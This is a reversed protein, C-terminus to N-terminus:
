GPFDDGDVPRAPAALTEGRPRWAAFYLDEDNFLDGLSPARKKEQERFVHPKSAAALRASLLRCFVLEDAQKAAQAITAAHNSAGGGAAALAAILRRHAAFAGRALCLRTALDGSHNNNFLHRASVLHFALLLTINTASKGGSDAGGGDRPTIRELESAQEELTQSFRHVTAAAADEEEQRRKRDGRTLVQVALQRLEKSMENTTVASAVDARLLTEGLRTLYRRATEPLDSDDTELLLVGLGLRHLELNKWSASAALSLAIEGAYAARKLEGKTSSVGTLLNHHLKESVEELRHSAMTELFETRGGLGRTLRHLGLFLRPPHDLLWTIFRRQLWCYFSVGTYVETLGLILLLAIPMWLVLGWPFLAWWSHGTFPLWFTDHLWFLTTRRKIYLLIVGGLVICLAGVTIVIRRIYHRQLQQETTRSKLLPSVNQFGPAVDTPKSTTGLTQTPTISTMAGWKM